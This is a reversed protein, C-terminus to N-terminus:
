ENASCKSYNVYEAYTYNIDIKWVIFAFELLASKKKLGLIFKNLKFTWTPSLTKSMPSSGLNDLVNALIM